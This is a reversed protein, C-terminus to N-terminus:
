PIQRRQPPHSALGKSYVDSSILTRAGIPASAGSHSILARPNVTVVTVSLLNYTSQLSGHASTHVSQRLRLTGPSGELVISIVGDSVVAFLGFLLPATPFSSVGLLDAGM